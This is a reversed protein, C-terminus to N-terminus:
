SHSSAGKSYHRNRPSQLGLIGRTQLGRTDENHLIVGGGGACPQFHGRNFKRNWLEQHSKLTSTAGSFMTWYRTGM